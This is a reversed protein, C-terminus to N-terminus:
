FINFIDCSMKKACDRLFAYRADRATEQLNGKQSAKLLSYEALGSTFSVDLARSRERVINGEQASQEGRLGHDYHAACLEFDLEGRLAQLLELMVMSDLGGSVAALVKDGTKILSKETIFFRVKKELKM